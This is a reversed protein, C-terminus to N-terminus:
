DITFEFINMGKNTKQNVDKNRYHLKSGHLKLINNAVWLGMGMRRATYNETNSGRQFKEFISIQEKKSVVTGFSSVSILNKSEKRSLEIQVTTNKDSYKIANLTKCSFSTPSKPSSFQRGGSFKIRLL